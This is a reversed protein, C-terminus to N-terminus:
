RGAQTSAAHETQVRRDLGAQLRLPMIYPDLAATTRDLAGAMQHITYHAAAQMSQLEQPNSLLHLVQGALMKEDRVLRAGGSELLAQYTERFNQVYQGSLIATNAMVPEIPNQGGQSKLSKGMFAVEALGFYLGMEGISDGIYLGTTPLIAQGSSRTAIEVDFKSLAQMIDDVRDPHRPVIVTLLDPIHAKLMCHVEAVSEEEGQHTSAAVWTPRPGIMSRFAHLLAPDVQPTGVDMKLNGVAQVHPAGLHKFRDADVDSQALVQSLNGFIAQALASRRSWRKNSRDSMRANVLIQPINRRALEQITTPWIESEAFIALDPKWHELFRGVARKMDMPVYQHITRESIRDQAINASTVTGTTLVLSIGFSEMRKILPMIALSEGVSAAHLWVLPGPPRPWSAYGYREGRRTHDEKGRRARARLFPGTFPYLLSGFGRYLRLTTHAWIDSM